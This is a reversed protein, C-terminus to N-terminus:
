MKTSARVKKIFYDFKKDPATDFDAVPIRRLALTKHSAIFRKSLQSSYYYPVSIRGVYNAACRQSLYALELSAFQTLVLTQRLARSKKDLFLNM